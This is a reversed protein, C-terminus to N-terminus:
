RVLSETLRTPPLNPTKQKVEPIPVHSETAEAFSFTNGTFPLPTDQDKPNKSDVVNSYKKPPSLISSHPHSPPSAFFMM